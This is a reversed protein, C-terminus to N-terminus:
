TWEIHVMSHRIDDRKHISDFCRWPWKILAVREKIFEILDVGKLQVQNWMVEFAERGNRNFNEM